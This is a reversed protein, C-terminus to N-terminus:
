TAGIIHLSQAGDSVADVVLRRDFTVMRNRGLSLLRGAERGILATGLEIDAKGDPGFRSGFSHSRDPIVTTSRRPRQVPRTM